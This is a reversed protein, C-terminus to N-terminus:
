FLIKLIGSFPCFCPVLSNQIKGIMLKRNKLTYFSANKSNKRGEISIKLEKKVEACNGLVIVTKVRVCM